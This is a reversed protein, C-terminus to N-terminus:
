ERMRADMACPLMRYQSVTEELRLLLSSRSLLVFLLLLM